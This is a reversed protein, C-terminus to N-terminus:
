REARFASVTRRRGVAKRRVGASEQLVIGGDVHTDSCNFCALVM